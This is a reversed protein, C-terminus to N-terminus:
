GIYIYYQIKIYIMNYDTNYDLVELVLKKRMLIHYFLMRRMYMEVNVLLNNNEVHIVVFDWALYINEVDSM